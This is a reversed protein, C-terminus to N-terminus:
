FDVIGPGGPARQAKAPPTVPAPKPRDQSPSVQPTEAAAVAPETAEGGKAPLRFGQLVLGASRRASATAVDDPAGAVKGEDPAPGQVYFEEVLEDEIPSDMLRGNALGARAVTELAAIDLGADEQQQEHKKAMQVAETMTIGDLEIDVFYFPRWFSKSTARSRLSLVFPVGTLRGGFAAHYRALQAEVNTLSNFSATRLVFGNEPHGQGDIQVHLRGFFKCRIGAQAAFECAENGQCTVEQVSGDAEARKAVGNGSSACVLRKQNVDFAQLNSRIVLDPSNFQLRIPIARLKRSAQSEAAEGTAREADQRKLLAEQIPHDVWDGDRKVLKTVRFHDTMVPRDPGEEPSEMRGLRITGLEVPTFVLGDMSYRHTMNKPM